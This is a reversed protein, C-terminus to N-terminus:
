RWNSRHREVSDRVWQITPLLGFEKETVVDSEEEIAEKPAQNQNLKQLEEKKV